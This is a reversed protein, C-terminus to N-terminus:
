ASARLRLSVLIWIRPAEAHAACVVSQVGWRRAKVEEVRDIWAWFIELNRECVGSKEGAKRRGECDVLYLPSAARKGLLLAIEIVSLM